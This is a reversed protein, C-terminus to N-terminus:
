IPGIRSSKTSENGSTDTASVKYYSNAPASSDIYSTSGTYGSNIKSFNVGDASRYISYGSIGVNDTSATWLLNVSGGARQGSLNTPATPPTSDSSVSVNISSSAKFGASDFITASIKHSGSSLSSSNYSISYPSSTTTGITIDDIYFEVKSVGNPASVSTTISFTDSVNAGNSPSTISISPQNGSQHAPCYEKPPSQNYGNAAAWARVPGEWNPNDPKESHIIRYIREEVYEPPTQDTALKDGCLTDIKVTGNSFAREKPIQWSAFIDKRTQGGAVPLKGTLTDVTVDTIGGPRKFEENATGSLSKAMFDHFIPAAAMAGAGRTGSMSSNDNNGVWVGVTLSPTYGMTWADRFADTTGTKAAVTRGEIYLSSRSGFIPARAQNDSLISSIEYAVEPEIIQKQNQKEKYEELVDGRQDVVKLIPTVDNRTGENAFVSYAGTLELLKVEGGGLVLSLGYRDKQNLTSIGFDSATKLAEDLGVLGLMKVAPINLSNSLATRITVPGRTREDYDDPSYGGGFDTKLDFLVSSPSWQTKFGTAYVVPKFSSGPQRKSITVNVNGDIETNFYDRSGIMALIQGTKPDIAVMAANKARAKKLNEPGYKDVVEQAVKQKELDLTTTVTLGGTEVIKDGYKEALVEKVYMVFHPATISERRPVFSLKKAKATNAEEETIFHCSTMRNLVLDKRATMEDTHTGYPSYYTPAKPLASLQAAEELTLDKAKKGFFTTSAAEIGYANSGYPIENLYMALIDDKSYIIELEISLIAEKIKRTFTRKPTLLANKVFQQTLTSGGQIKKGRHSINYVTARAIGRFDLGFHKYFNKDEVSITAQKINEPIEEKKLITRNEDGHVSYLLNGNRDLIKTSEASMRRQIRGPTPLDKSYWAVLLLFLGLIILATQGCFLLIPKTGYKRPQLSKIGLKYYNKFFSVIKKAAHNFFKKM